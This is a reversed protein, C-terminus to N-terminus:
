FHLSFSYSQNNDWRNTIIRYNHGKYKVPLEFEDIMSAFIISGSLTFVDLPLCQVRISLM